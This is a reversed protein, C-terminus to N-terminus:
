ITDSSADKIKTFHKHISFVTKVKIRKPIRLSRRTTMLSAKIKLSKRRERMKVRVQIRVVVAVAVTVAAVVRVVRVVVAAAATNESKREKIKTRPNPTKRNVRRKTFKKKKKLRLWTLKEWKPSRRTTLVKSKCLKVRSSEIKYQREMHREITM